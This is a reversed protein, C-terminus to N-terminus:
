ADKRKLNLKDSTLQVGGVSFLLAWFLVLSLCAVPLVDRTPNNNSPPFTTVWKALLTSLFQTLINTTITLLFLLCELPGTFLLILNAATTDRTNTDTSVPPAFLKELQTKVVVSFFIVVAVAIVVLVIDQQTADIKTVTIYALTYCLANKFISVLGQAEEYVQTFVSM